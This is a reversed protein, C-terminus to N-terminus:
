KTITILNSLWNALKENRDAGPIEDLGIVQIGRKDYQRILESNCDFLAIYGRRRHERFEYSITDWIQNIFPDRLSYGLFLPTKKVMTAKLNMILQPRRSFFSNFQTQTVILSDPQELEGCLKVIQCAQHDWYPIEEDRVIKNFRIGKSEFAKEMLNDYNTTYIESVPLETILGHVNTPLVTTTDLRRRMQRVLTSFGFHDMYFDMGELLHSARIDSVNEPLAIELDRTLEKVLTVWDPLGAGISLGAGVFLFFGRDKVLDPPISFVRQSM